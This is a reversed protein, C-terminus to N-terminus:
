HSVDELRQSPTSPPSRRVSRVELRIRGTLCQLHDHICRYDVEGVRLNNVGGKTEVSFLQDWDKLKDRPHPKM